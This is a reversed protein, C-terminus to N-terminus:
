YLFYLIMQLSLDKKYNLMVKFRLFFNNKVEEINKPSKQRYINRKDIKKNRRITHELYYCTQKGVIKKKYNGHNYKGRCLFIEIELLIYPYLHKFNNKNPKGSNTINNTGM